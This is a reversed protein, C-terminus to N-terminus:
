NFNQHNKLQDTFNPANPVTYQKGKNKASWTNGPGNATPSYGSGTPTFTPNGGGQPWAYTGSGDFRWDVAAMQTFIQEGGVTGDLTFSCSFTVPTMTRTTSLNIKQM